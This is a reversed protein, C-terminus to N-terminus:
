HQMLRSSFSQLQLDRAGHHLRGSIYVPLGLENDSGQSKQM